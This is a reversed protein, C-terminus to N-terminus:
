QLGERIADRNEIGPEEHGGHEGLAFGAAVQRLDEVIQRRDNTVAEAHFTLNTDDGRVPTDGAPNQRRERDAQTQEERERAGLRIPLEVGIWEPDLHDDPRERELDDAHEDDPFDYLDLVSATMDMSKGSTRIATKADTASPTAAIADIASVQVVGSCRCIRRRDWRAPSPIRACSCKASAGAGHTLRKWCSTGFDGFSM